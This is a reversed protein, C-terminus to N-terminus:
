GEGLVDHLVSTILPGKNYNEFNDKLIHQVNEPTTIFLFHAVHFTKGYKRYCGFLYENLTRSHNQLVDIWLELINLEDM